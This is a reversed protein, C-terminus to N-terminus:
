RRRASPVPAARTPMSARVWRNNRPNADPFVNDPDLEAEVVPSPVPVDLTVTRRHFWVSTPLTRELTAGTALTLRLRTPMPNSGHDALIVRVGGPRPQVDVIAQDLVGTDFWWPRWFWDLNQGTARDVFAFFDWPTPHRFAWVTAYRRLVADFTEPGLLARLTELLVAPKSYAAVTRAGYPSVLDTHRMLPVERETGAVALYARRTEEQPRSGPFFDARARDELFTAFGEDMWAYAAEDQGVMMPFWQHAIEHATVAYLDGRDAPRGLFVLMPYEMGGIPGEALTLQPYPYAPLWREFFSVAHHAFSLIDTWHPAGPRYFAHLLVVTGDRRRYPRADWRYVASAAFAFDRVQRARFHWELTDASATARAAEGPAVITLASDSRLAAALRLRTAPALVDAANVLEGTAGVLVGRPVRLRVDFDAWDLYFEGDGLYPTADWGRLDDYM